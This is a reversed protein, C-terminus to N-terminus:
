FNSVTPALPKAKLRKLSRVTQWGALACFLSSSALRAYVSGIIGIQPILILNSTVNVTLSILFMRWVTSQEGSALLFRVLPVNVFFFVVGWILGQLVPVSNGFTNGYLFTIMQPALWTIGAAIPVASGLMILVSRKLLRRTAAPSENLTRILAPFLVMRYAQSLLLVVSVITVAASYWAVVTM